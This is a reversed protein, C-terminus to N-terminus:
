TPCGSSETDKSLMLKQEQPVVFFGFISYCDYEKPLFLFVRWNELICPPHLM